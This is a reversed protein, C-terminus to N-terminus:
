RLCRRYSKATAHHAEDIILYVDQNKLWKGLLDLNRTISDKSAFLVVDEAKIHVPKNHMGSIIRYIFDTEQIMVDSYCNKMFAEAAQELLLYRHAVWIVKKKKDLANKLVWYAATLTKGGGTPQVLLSRFKTKNDLKDLETIAEVQHEYLSRPNRGNIVKVLQANKNEVMIRDLKVVKGYNEDEKKILYKCPGSEFFIYDPVEKYNSCSAKGGIMQPLSIIKSCWLCMPASYQM